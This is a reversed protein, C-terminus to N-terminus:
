PGELYSLRGTDLAFKITARVATMDPSWDDPDSPAKGGLCLSLANRRSIIYQQLSSREITWRCCRFLFHKVDEKEVGCACNPSDTAGIRHLYENFRGMATRLQILVKSEVKKLDDYLKKTHKGPLARDLKKTFDGLQKPLVRTQKIAEIARRTTTSRAQYPALQLSAEQRTPERAAKKAALQQQSTVKTPLWIVQIQNARQLLKGAAQYIGKIDVQGSQQKPQMLVRVASLSRTLIYINRGRLHEPLCRLAMSMAALEATYPNQEKRPGLMKSYTIYCGTATSSETDRIAGGAGVKGNRDSASTAVLIGQLSDILPQKSKEDSSTEAQLRPAWPQISYPEISEVRESPTNEYEMSLKSLPSNFRRTPTISLKALPNSAPLTQLKIWTAAAKEAHRVQIPKLHAEAEAIATSVTAFAGTVAQAGIRQVRNFVTLARINCAHKWVVMAYDVVPAVMCTFLQRAMPPSTMQLRKLAMAAKLGKTAALAMHNKYRLEKDMVVGLLKIEARPRM